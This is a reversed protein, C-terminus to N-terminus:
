DNVIDPRFGQLLFLIAEVQLQSTLTLRKIQSTSIQESLSNMGTLPWSMRRGVMM